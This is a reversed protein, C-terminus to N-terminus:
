AKQEQLVGMALKELLQREWKEDKPVENNPNDM